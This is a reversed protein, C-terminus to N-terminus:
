TIIKKIEEETLNIFENPRIAKDDIYFGEEGCWPKGVVIGDYNVNNSALWDILIPLTIANIRAIDNNFTKMNRATHLIVEYGNGRYENLKEILAINAKKTEYKDSSEHITLTNDVDVIIKKGKM